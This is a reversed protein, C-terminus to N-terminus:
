VRQDVLAQRVQRAQQEQQVPVLHALLAVQDQRVQRVLVPLAQHDVQVQHDPVPQVQLGLVVRAVRVRLAM